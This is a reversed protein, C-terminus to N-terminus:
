TRFMEETLSSRRHIPVQGSSASQKESVEKWSVSLEAATNELTGHVEENISSDRILRAISEHRVAGACHDPNKVWEPMGGAADRVYIVNLAVEVAAQVILAIM